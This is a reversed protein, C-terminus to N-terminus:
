PDMSVRWYLPETEEAVDELEITWEAERESVRSGSEVERIEEPLSVAFKLYSDPFAMEFFSRSEDDIPQDFGNFVRQMYSDDEFYIAPTESGAGYFENLAALSQFSLRTRVVRIGDGTDSSYRELDLQDIGSAARRVERESVPLPLMGPPSDVRDEVIDQERIRYEMEITGSERDEFTVSTEISLCGSLTSVLVVIMAAARGITSM